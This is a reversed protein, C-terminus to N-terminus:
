FILGGERAGDALSRVRGHYRYGGRDFVITDIGNSKAREAILKGVETAQEIKTGKLGISTAAAVTHGKLDDILQCYIAKNSRYVSLRPRETTGSVKNRIRMHLRKRSQEKTRNM